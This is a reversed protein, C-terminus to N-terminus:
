IQTEMWMLWEKLFLEMKDKNYREIEARLVPNDQALRTFSKFGPGALELSDPRRERVFDLYAKSLVYPVHSVLAAEEDHEKAQRRFPRAGLRLILKEVEDLGRQTNKSHPVIVWPAGVFLTESSNEYGSKESGAMPHSSIFEVKENSLQEFRATIEEKVSAIDLVLLPKNQALAAIEQAISVITSIPTALIILDAKSVIQKLDADVVVDDKLAKAISGGMLGLGIIGIM